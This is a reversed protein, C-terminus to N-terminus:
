VSEILVSLAGQRFRRWDHASYALYKTMVDSPNALLQATILQKHEKAFQRGEDYPDVYVPTMDPEKNM